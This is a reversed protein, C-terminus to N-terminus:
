VAVDSGPLLGQMGSVIGFNDTKNYSYYYSIDLIQAVVERKKKKGERQGRPFSGASAPTM